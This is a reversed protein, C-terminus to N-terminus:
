KCIGSSAKPVEKAKAELSFVNHIGDSLVHHVKDLLLIDYLSGNVHFVQACLFVLNLKHSPIVFRPVLVVCVLEHRIELNNLFKCCLRQM